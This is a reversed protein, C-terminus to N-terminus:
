QWPLAEALGTGVVVSGTLLIVAVRYAWLWLSLGRVHRARAASTAAAFLALAALLLVSGAAVVEAIGTFVGAAVLVVGLNWLALEAALARRRQPAAGLKARLAQQGGGLLLQSLAGVLVLFAVLWWGHEFSEQSRALAAAVAALAFAAAPATFTSRQGTPTRGVRCEAPAASAPPRGTM